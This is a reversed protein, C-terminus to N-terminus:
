SISRAPYRRHDWKNLIALYLTTRTASFAAASSGCGLDGFRLLIRSETSSRIM